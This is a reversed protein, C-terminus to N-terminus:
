EIKFLFVESLSKKFIYFEVMDGVCLVHKWLLLEILRLWYFYDISLVSLFDNFLSYLPHYEANEDVATLPLTTPKEGISFKFKKFDSSLSNTYYINPSGIMIIFICM